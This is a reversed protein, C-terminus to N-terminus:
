IEADKGGFKASYPRFSLIGEFAESAGEERVLPFNEALM